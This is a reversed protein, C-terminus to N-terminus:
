QPVNYQFEGNVIYTEEIEIGNEEHVDVAIGEFTGKIHIVYIDNHEIEEVNVSISKAEMGVDEFGFLLDFTPHGDLIEVLGTRAPISMGVNIRQNQDVFLVLASKLNASEDEPYINGYATVNTNNLDEIVINFTNNIQNGAVSYNIYTGQQSLRNSNDDNKSCSITILSMLIILKIANLRCKM